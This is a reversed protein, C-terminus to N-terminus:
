NILWKKLLQNTTKRASILSDSDTNTPSGLDECHSAGTILHYAVNPNTTNSNASILSLTSWPDNEGNIFFINSVSDNLLPTYYNENMQAIAPPKALNFLQNCILHQYKTNLLKSRTSQSRDVNANQGYGYETCTQYFWQRSSEAATDEYDKPDESMLGQPTFLEASASMDTLMKKTANAYGEMPTDAASLQDCFEQQNGYQVNGSSVDAILSLFDTSDVITSANFLQKIEEMRAPDNLADEIQQVTEQMKAACEPGVVRTVVTDYEVFDEKSMVPASSALAGVVLEPHKLRYYAALSGPYSGGFAVWKGTWHQQDSIKRQFFALDELAQRTTLFRLDKASLSAFPMSKGYYRHELAILKAHYKKAYNRIAGTLDEKSCVGEGCISFFVPSDPRKGFTEDVFYRQPFTGLKVDYHDIYQQIQKEKVSSALLPQQHLSRQHQQFAHLLPGAYTFNTCLVLSILGLPKAISLM